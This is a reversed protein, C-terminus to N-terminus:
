HVGPVHPHLSSQQPHQTRHAHASSAGVGVCSLGSGAGAATFDSPPEHQPPVPLALCDSLMEVAVGGYPGLVIVGGRKDGLAAAPKCANLMDGRCEGNICAFEACYWCRWERLAEDNGEGSMPGEEGPSSCGGAGPLLEPDDQQEGTDLAAGSSCTLV